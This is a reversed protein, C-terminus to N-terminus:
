NKKPEEFIRLNRGITNRGRWSYARRAFEEDSMEDLLEASLCPLNAELFYDVDSYLTGAEAARLTHPCVEQCIDCGWVTGYKKIAEAESETLEGKKQTLASLCQGLEGMPCAVKCRGCGECHGVPGAKAEPMPLDTIIEGLFVYSSYQKTILMGNDGFVGLGAKAAAEREDIPSDDAFGCFRYGPYQAELLPLVSGFFEKYFGHYDRPIAYASLNKSKHRTLYPIALIVAYLGDLNEFGARSLKYPRVITCDRLPIPACLRAGHLSLFRLISETM